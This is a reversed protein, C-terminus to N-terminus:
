QFDESAAEALERYNVQALFANAMDSLFYNDNRITDFVQDNVTESFMQSLVYIDEGIDGYPNAYYEQALEYFLQDYHLNVLWTEYNTWGNYSGMMPKGPRRSANRAIPKRKMGSGKMTVRTTVSKVAAAKPAAKKRKTGPKRKKRAEAMMISNVLQEKKKTSYGQIKLQKAKRKLQDVSKKMLQAKPGLKTTTKKAAM